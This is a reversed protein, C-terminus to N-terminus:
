EFGTKAATGPDIEWLATLACHRSHKNRPSAIINLLGPVAPKANSGLNILVETAANQVDENGDKITQVLDPLAPTADSGLAKFGLIARLRIRDKSSIPDPKILRAWEAVRRTKKQFASDRTRLMILLYPVAKPGIHHLADISEIVEPTVFISYFTSKTPLGRPISDFPKLWESLSKGAYEPEPEKNPVTFYLVFCGVTVLIAV